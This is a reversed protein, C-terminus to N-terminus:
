KITKFLRDLPLTNVVDRAELWGRRAVSVGLEMNALHSVAHSDTNIAIRVGREKAQRCHGDSLDLRDPFSNIELATNTDRCAAFVEEMDIAYGEREGWVRGTPHAIIHVHKNACARTVRRTLQERSQRFGTHVAAVVIDFGALVEDPYDLGGDNDIDVEAGFLVRFGRLKENLADVEERKRRVAEISLGRAVKLSQSHDTVALYEYGLSRAAAAMEAVTNVGDSWKSHAHLDGKIDARTVLRPLSDKLALEIEGTDERLEPPIYAMGFLKFIDEETKGALITETGNKELRFVGYESTKWGNRVGITRLHVNFNKSGTFYLLAAGYANEEVVRCDVQVDDATRVSAKTAGKAIVEKVWPLRAFADMVKEPQKSVVLIDIDRVTEKARRLSGAESIRAVEPLKRLEGVFKDKLERAAPLVMRERGQKFLAIGRLINEVTKEKIGPIGTLRGAAIAADLEAVSKVGLRESLLKATKPGVNPVSMLELFGPPVENKLEEYGACTGTAVIEGIKGALDKGIGPIVTLVGKAALEAVDDALGEIADAARAYARVRFVNEGKIELIAAMDRFIKAVLPNKMDITLKCADALAYGIKALAAQAALTDLDPGLRRLQKLRIHSLVYPSNQLRRM